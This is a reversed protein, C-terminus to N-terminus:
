RGKEMKEIRSELEIVRETLAAFADAWVERRVKTRANIGEILFDVGADTFYTPTGEPCHRCPIARGCECRILRETAPPRTPFEAVTVM